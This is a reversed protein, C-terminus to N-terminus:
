GNKIKYMSASSKKQKEIKDEKVLIELLNILTKIDIGTLQSRNNLQKAYFWVDPKSKLIHLISNFVKEKDYTNKDEIINIPTNNTVGKKDPLIKDIHNKAINLLSLREGFNLSDNDLEKSILKTIKIQLSLADFNEQDKEKTEYKGNKRLNPLVEYALWHCFKNAFKSKSKMLLKYVGEERVYIAPRGVGISVERYEFSELVTPLYRSPTTYGLIKGLYNDGANFWVVQDHDDIFCPVQSQTPNFLFTLDSM